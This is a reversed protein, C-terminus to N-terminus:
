WFKSIFHVGVYLVSGLVGVTALGFICILMEVLTFGKQNKM